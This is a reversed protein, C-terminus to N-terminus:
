GWSVPLTQLGRFNFHERWRYEGALRLRPLRELAMSLATQAQAVALSAGLCAHPGGGFTTHQRADARGVDLRDPNEWRAPDRNAAGLVMIVRQRARITHGHLEFDERAVRDHRMVPSEYRLFEDVATAILAPDAKLRARQEPHQFLCLMGNGILNVTSDHGAFLLMVGTALLQDESLAHGGEEEEERALSGLVTDSGTTRLGAVIGRLYDTMETFARVMADLVEMRSPGLAFFTGIDRSWAALRPRDELPVGLMEAVARVPLPQAYQPVFDMEGRAQVADLLESATQEILPKMRAIARPSFARSLMRRLRLHEDDDLNLVWLALFRDIPEMKARVEPPLQSSAVARRMASSLRPDKLAAVVDDYRTLVWANLVESWHVPEAYRLVHYLPHPNNFVDGSVLGYPDRAGTQRATVIRASSIGRM